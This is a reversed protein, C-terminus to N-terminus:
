LMPVRQWPTQVSVWPSGFFQPAQPVAQPAPCTQECPLHVVVHAVPSASQLLAQM